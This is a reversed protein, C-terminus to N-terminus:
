TLLATPDSSPLPAAGRAILHANDPTDLTFVPQGRTLAAACLGAIKGGPEAHPILLRDALTAVHANRKAALAATPRRITAPFFSLILLRGATLPPRWSKPIRITGIGRAPCVVVSATGRLLVDLFEREMPSQFGGITTVDAARLARALDYTELIAPGPARVSCFFGLLSGTLVDLNGRTTVVPLKGDESCRRLAAPYDAEGPKLLTPHEPHM